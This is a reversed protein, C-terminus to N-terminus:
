VTTSGTMLAREIEAGLADTGLVGVKLLSVQGTRDIVMITPLGSSRYRARVTERPDLLVPYPFPTKQVYARATTESEGSNIALFHVGKGDYRRHLEELFQAQMRCPGCWSAWLEVVVVDGAFDSPGLKSGDLTPLRFDPVPWQGAAQTPGATGTPAAGPSSAETLPAPVDVPLRQSAYSMGFFVVTFGVSVVMMWLATARLLTKTVDDGAIQEKTRM